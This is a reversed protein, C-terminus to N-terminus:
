QRKTHSDSLNVVKIKPNCATQSATPSDLHSLSPTDPSSTPQKTYSSGSQNLFLNVPLSGPKNYTQQIVPQGNPQYFPLSSPKSVPKNNSQSASHSALHGATQEAIQSTPQKETQNVSQNSTIRVSQRALKCPLWITKWSAPQSILQIAPM